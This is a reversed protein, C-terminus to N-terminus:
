LLDLRTRLLNEQDSLRDITCTLQIVKNSTSSIVPDQNITHSIASSILEASHSTKIINQILNQIASVTKLTKNQLQLAAKENWNSKSSM